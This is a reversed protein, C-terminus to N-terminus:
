GDVGSPMEVDIHHAGHKDMIKAADRQRIATHVNVVTRDALIPEEFEATELESANIGVLNGMLGGAMAGGVLGLGLLGFFGGASMAGLDSTLAALILAGVCGVAGGVIAGTTADQTTAVKEDDVFPIPHDPSHPLTRHLSPLLGLEASRFGSLRLERLAERAQENRDFIGVVINHSITSM